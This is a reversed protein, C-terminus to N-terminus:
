GTVFHNYKDGEGIINVAAVAIYYHGPPVGDLSITIATRHVTLSVTDGSSTINHSINYRLTPPSM